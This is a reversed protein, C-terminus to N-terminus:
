WLEHAGLTLLSLFAMLILAYAMRMMKRYTLAIKLRKRRQKKDNDRKDYIIYAKM